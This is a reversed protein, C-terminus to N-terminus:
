TFTREAPSLALTVLRDRRAADAFDVSLPDTFAQAEVHTAVEIGADQSNVHAASIEFDIPGLAARHKSPAFRPPRGHLALL